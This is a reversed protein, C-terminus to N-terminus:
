AREGIWGDSPMTSRIAKGIMTPGAYAPPRPDHPSRYRRPTPRIWKRVCPVKEAEFKAFYARASTESCDGFMMAARRASVGDAYACKLKAVKDAALGRGRGHAVKEGV